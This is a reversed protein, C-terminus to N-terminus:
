GVLLRGLVYAAPAAFTVPLAARLAVARSTGGPSSESQIRDVVASATTALLGALAALVMINVPPAVDHLVQISALLAGLGVAAIVGVLRWMPRSGPFVEVLCVAIVGALAVGVSVAGNPTTRLVVWPVLLVALVVATMTFTLSTTLENRGHRRALQLVIGGLFALGLIAAVLSFGAAGGRYAATLAAAAGTLLALGGAARAMPVGVHRVLGALLVVQVVMVALALTTEGAVSGLLLVGTLGAAALAPM